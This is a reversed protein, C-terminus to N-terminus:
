QTTEKEGSHLAEEASLQRKYFIQNDLCAFAERIAGNFFKGGTLKSVIGGVTGAM